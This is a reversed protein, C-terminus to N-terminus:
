QFPREKDFVGMFIPFGVSLCSRQSNFFKKYKVQCVAMFRHGVPLERVCRLCERRNRQINKTYGHIIHLRRDPALLHCIGRRLIIIIQPLEDISTTRLVKGVRTVRADGKGSYVGSGTHEAGQCMSRFKLITFVKGDKGIRKQKFLVTGKSDCKILVAVLCMPLFGIVFLILAACIDIGRKIKDAYM